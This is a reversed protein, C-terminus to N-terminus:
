RLQALAAIHEPGTGCCGGILTAGEAIWTEAHAAYREPAPHSSQWGLGETPHGANAYGGFPLGIPALARVYALTRSAPVCNVLVAAAGADRAARAADALQEPTLLDARYGATFSAWVPLGTAVAATVAAVGEGPHPFTECLLLDCGADALAHALEAHEPGPDPPSNWPEYCDNLPALSGAVRHDTPVSDRAIRVAAHALDLWDDGASRRRTRFTNTTHVTAGATAYAAHLEAVHHPAHRLAWASWLPPPTPVGRASLQTGIPGDLLIM